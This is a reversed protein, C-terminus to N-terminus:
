VMVLQTQKFQGINAFSTFLNSVMARMSEISDQLQRKQISIVTLREKKQDIASNKQDDLETEVALSIDTQHLILTGQQHAVEELELTKLEAEKEVTLQYILLARIQNIAQELQLQAQETAAKANVLYESLTLWVKEAGPLYPLGFRLLLTRALTQEELAEEIVLTREKVEVFLDEQEEMELEASTNNARLMMALFFALTPPLQAAEKQYMSGFMERAEAPM